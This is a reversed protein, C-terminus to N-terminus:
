SSTLYLVSYHIIPIPRVKVLNDLALGHEGTLYGYGGGLLLSLYISYILILGLTANLYVGELM